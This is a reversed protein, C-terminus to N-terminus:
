RNTGTLPVHVGPAAPFARAFAPRGARAPVGIAAPLIRKELVILMGIVAFALEFYAFSLAAGGVAFAFMMLQLTTAAERIWAPAEPHARAIRVIKRAKTFAGALISLYILLGAFGHDGLVQFYVSHAARAHQTNPLADGTYFWPYSSFHQSLASWVPFNELGKFGGGFFPNQMALIFSLKWAVV